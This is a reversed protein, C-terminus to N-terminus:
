PSPSPSLPPSASPSPTETEKEMAKALEIARVYLAIAQERTPIPEGKHPKAQFIRCTYFCGSEMGQPPTELRSDFPCRHHNERYLPSVRGQAEFEHKFLHDIGDPWQEANVSCLGWSCHLQKDGPTTDDWYTLKTGGELQAKIRELAALYRADSLKRLRKERCISCFCSYDDEIKYTTGCYACTPQYGHKSRRGTDKSPKPM